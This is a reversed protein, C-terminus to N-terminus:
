YIGDYDRRSQYQAIAYDDAIEQNIRRFQERLFRDVAADDLFTPIEVVREQLDTDTELAELFMEYRADDDPPDLLREAARMIARTNSLPIRNM